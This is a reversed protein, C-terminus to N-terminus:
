KIDFDDQLRHAYKDLLGDEILYDELTNLMIECGLINRATNWLKNDGGYFNRVSEKILQKLENEDLTVTRKM